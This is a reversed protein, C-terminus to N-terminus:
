SREHSIEEPKSFRKHARVRVVKVEPADGRLHKAYARLRIIEREAEASLTPDTLTAEAFSILQDLKGARGLAWDSLEEPTMRALKAKLGAVFGRQQAPPMDEPARLAAEMQNFAELFRIKWGMARKGTFGMVLLAFGDRTLEYAKSRIPAGGSPNPREIVTQAFNRLRYDEPLNLAEIKRLVDRHEKGFREAVILSTTKLTDTILASDARAIQKAM